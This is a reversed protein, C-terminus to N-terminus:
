NNTVIGLHIDQHIVYIAFLKLIKVQVQTRTLIQIKIEIKITLYMIIQEKASM